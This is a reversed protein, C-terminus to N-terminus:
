KPEGHSKISLDYFSPDATSVFGTFQVAIKYTGADVAMDVHCCLNSNDKSGNWPEIIAWTPHNCLPKDCKRCKPLVVNIRKGCFPCEADGCLLSGDSLRSNINHIMVQDVKKM